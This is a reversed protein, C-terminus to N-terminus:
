LAKSFLKHGEKTSIYSDFVSSINRVFFQGLETIAIKTFGNALDAIQLMEDDIFPKLRSIETAYKQSDLVLEHNCMLQIIMKRREIDDDSCLLFKEAGYEDNLFQAYYDNLKKYNQKYVGDIDSIATVGASFMDCGYHTTFGQFNRSLTKEKLSKALEDDPKAFHDMGIFEYGFKTLEEFAMDFIDLKTEQDPLTAEDIYKRQFPLMSPLHAYNFLAIRNPDLAKVLKITEAFTELNQHPLGYILDFNISKFGIGRAASLLDEILEFSQIRNISEQTETNFDQVGMSLRNFGLEFLVELHEKSTVRPDVEIAYEHNTNNADYLSFNKAIHQYLDRIQEPNLFTPTGGGWAMQIVKRDKNIKSGYYDLEEKLHELYQKEIGHEKSIVVNCGCFYCQSECFPLHLYLSYDKGKANSRIIAEELLQHDYDQKWEPATPYSTYRPVAGGYKTILEKSKERSLNTLM